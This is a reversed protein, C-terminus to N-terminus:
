TAIFPTWTAAFTVAFVPADQAFAGEYPWNRAADLLALGLFLSVGIVMRM